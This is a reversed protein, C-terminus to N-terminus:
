LRRFNNGKPSQRLHRSWLHLSQDFPVREFSALNAQFGQWCIRFLLNIQFCSFFSQFLGAPRRFDPNDHPAIGIKFYHFFGSRNQFLKPYGIFHRNGGCVSTLLAILNAVEAWLRPMFTMIEPAPCAAWRAPNIAAWVESGIMPTGM